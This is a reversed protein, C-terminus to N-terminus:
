SIEVNPEAAPSQTFKREAKVVHVRTRPTIRNAPTHGFHWFGCYRCPYVNMPYRIGQKRILDVLSTVAERKRDFRTKGKCSEKGLKMEAEGKGM